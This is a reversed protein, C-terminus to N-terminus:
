EWVSYARAIYVVPLYMFTGHKQVDGHNSYVAKETQIEWSSGCKLEGKGRQTNSVSSSGGKKQTQDMAQETIEDTERM